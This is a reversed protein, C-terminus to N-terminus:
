NPERERRLRAAVAGELDLHGLLQQLRHAEPYEHRKNRGTRAATARCRRSELFEGAVNLGEDLIGHGLPFGTIWADFCEIDSHHSADHIPRSLALMGVDTNRQGARALLWSRRDEDVALFDCGQASRGDRRVELPHDRVIDLASKAM